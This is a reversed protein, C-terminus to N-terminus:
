LSLNKMFMVYRIFLIQMVLFMEATQEFYLTESIKRTNYNLFLNYDSMNALTNSGSHTLSIIPIKKSKLAVVIDKIFGSEGSKSIILVVDDETMVRLTKYFEGEGLIKDVLVNINLFMRKIETAVERQVSGTGYVFIRNANQLLRFIGDFDMSRFREITQIATNCAEEVLDEGTDQFDGCEWRIFAKLESFGRMGLKQAFRMVTSRSVNCCLALEDISINCCEGRHSSIYQWIIQDNPNLRDYYKSVKEDLRM